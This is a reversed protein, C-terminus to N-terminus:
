RQFVPFARRSTSLSVLTKKGTAEGRRAGEASYDGLLQSNHAKPAPRIETFRILMIDTYDNETLNNYRYMVEYWAIYFIGYILMVM